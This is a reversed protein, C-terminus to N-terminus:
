DRRRTGRRLHQLRKEVSLLNSNAEALHWLYKMAENTAKRNRALGRQWQARTTARDDEEEDSEEDEEEDEDSQDAEDHRRSKKKTRKLLMVGEKGFMDEDRFLPYTRKEKTTPDELTLESVAKVLANDEKEATVAKIENSPHLVRPPPKEKQQRRRGLLSRIELAQTYPAEVSRGTSRQAFSLSCHPKIIVVKRQAPRNIRMRKEEKIRKRREEDEAKAKAWDRDAAEALSLLDCAPIRQAQDIAQPNEEKRMHQKHLLTKVRKRKEKVRESMSVCVLNRELPLEVVPADEAMRRRKLPMPSSAEEPRLHAGSARLEAASGGGAEAVIRPPPAMVRKQRLNRHLPERPKRLLSAVHKNKTEQENKPAEEGEEHGEHVGSSPAGPLPSSHSRKTARKVVVPPPYRFRPDGRYFLKGCEGAPAVAPGGTGGVDQLRNWLTEM